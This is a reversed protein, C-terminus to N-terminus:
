SMQGENALLIFYFSHKLRAETEPACLWRELGVCMRGKGLIWGVCVCGVRDTKWSLSLSLSASLYM